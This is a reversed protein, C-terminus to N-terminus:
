HGSRSPRCPRVMITMAIHREFGDVKFLKVNDLVNQSLNPVLSRAIHCTALGDAVFEISAAFTPARFSPAAHPM